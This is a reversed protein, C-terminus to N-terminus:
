KESLKLLVAGDIIAVDARAKIHMGEGLLFYGKAATPLGHKKGTLTGSELATIKVHENAFTKGARPAPDHLILTQMTTGLLKIGVLTVWHGGIRQYEDQTSDFQYWGVNLWVAANNNIGEALWALQPVKVQTSYQRPHKRWGQYELRAYGGFLERVIKDVGRLLGATGTGNQLSTKMYETSALKKILALQEDTQTQQHLWVLSNSVAVPACYQQGNGTDKGHVDTQTFDPIDNIYTTNFITLNSQALTSNPLYSSLIIVILWFTNLHYM